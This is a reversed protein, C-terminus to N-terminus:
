RSHGPGYLNVSYLHVVIEQIAQRETHLAQGVLVHCLQGLNKRFTEINSTSRARRPRLARRNDIEMQRGRTLKQTVSSYVDIEYVQRTFQPSSDLSELTSSRSHTPAKRAAAQRADTSDGFEM